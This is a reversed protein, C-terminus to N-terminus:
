RDAAKRARRGRTTRREGRRIQEAECVQGAAVTEKCGCPCTHQSMARRGGGAGRPPQSRYWNRFTQEVDALTREGRQPNPSWMLVKGGPIPDPEPFPNAAYVAANPDHAPDRLRSQRYAPNIARTRTTTVSRHSFPRAASLPQGARLAREEGFIRAVDDVTLYEPVQVGRTTTMEVDMMITATM